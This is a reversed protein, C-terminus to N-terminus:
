PPTLMFRTFFTLYKKYTTDQWNAACKFKGICENTLKLKLKHIIKYITTDRNPIEPYFLARNQHM